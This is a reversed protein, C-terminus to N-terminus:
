LNFKEFVEHIIETEFGRSAAFRFLKERIEFTNGSITRYKKKLEDTLIDYYEKPDIESLVNRIIAPDVGKSLLMFKMKKRGWKNFRLKDNVFSETYRRDDIFKQEVLFDVIEQAEEHSCGQSFAKDFIQASCYERQSCWKMAKNRIEKITDHPTMANRSDTM